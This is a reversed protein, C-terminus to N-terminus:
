ACKRTLVCVYGVDTDVLMQLIKSRNQVTMGHYMFFNYRPVRYYMSTLYFIAWYVVVEIVSHSCLHVRTPLAHQITASTSFIAPALKRQM